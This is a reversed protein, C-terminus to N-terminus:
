VQLGCNSLGQVVVLSFSVPRLRLLGSQLRSGVRTGSLRCETVLSAVVILLKHVAVLSYDGSSAVLSFGLCCHLGLM